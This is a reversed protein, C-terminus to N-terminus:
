HFFAMNIYYLTRSDSRKHILFTFQKTSKRVRKQIQQKQQTCIEYTPNLIKNISTMEKLLQDFTVNDYGTIKTTHRRLIQTSKEAQIATGPEQKKHEKARMSPRQGNNRGIRKDRDM